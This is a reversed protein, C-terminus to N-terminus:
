LQDATFEPNVKLEKLEMIIGMPLQPTKVTQTKPFKVGEFDGYNAFTVEGIVPSESKLKLGTAISFYDSTKQKGRTINIKYADEGEVQTVGDLVLSVESDGYTLEPFIALAGKFNDKLEEPVAQEQGMAILSANEKDMRLTSVPQGSLSSEQFVKALKKDIRMVQILEMGQIEGVSTQELSQIAKLKNEGGIADLYRDIVSAATVDKSVEKKELVDGESTYEVVEGFQGLQDRFEAANGVIVLYAHDPKIYKPAIAKLDSTSVAALTKLYNKYYDKPLKQIETNIAFSAITAPNELSRGFSGTLYAQAAQLEEQSVEGKQLERLEHFFQYAASDTVETRVSADASFVGGLRGPSISSYAGYTYGKNERLNLFLRSSAGGGLVYSLVTAAVRDSSNYKLDVPYTVNIVSQVSAPRDVLIVKDRAPLEAAPWHHTPVAGSEWAGFKEQVLKEAEAKTIDGVIALYAISPKFYTSYYNKIDEVTVNNISEPTELEGYPHDKGYLVANSVRYSISNPDDKAAALGSVRQKKIKELEAEPFSPQFLVEALLDTLVDVHKKLSSASASTSSVSLYGGIQDVAEDLADKDKKLTGSRMLEGVMSTLGAKEGELLPDRDLVLSFTVRPLKHNEVVFVKLGNPMTFTEAEGINITPAPGPEPYKSRDVQAFVASTTFLFLAIYIIFNKM